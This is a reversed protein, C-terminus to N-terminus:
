HITRAGFRSDAAYVRRSCLFASSVSLAPDHTRRKITLKGRLTGTPVCDVLDVICLAEGYALAYHPCGARHLRACADQFYDRPYDQHRFPKKASCIVLPGRYDTKWGRTEYPKIGLAIAQAHPQWLSLAKISPM